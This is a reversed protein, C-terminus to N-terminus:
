VEPPAPSRKPLYKADITVTYTKFTIVREGCFQCEGNPRIWGHACDKPDRGSQSVSFRKNAYQMM